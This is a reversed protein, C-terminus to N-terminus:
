LHARIKYYEFLTPSCDLIEKGMCAHLDMSYVGAFCEPLVLIKVSIYDASLFYSTEVYGPAHQGVDKWFFKCLLYALVFM